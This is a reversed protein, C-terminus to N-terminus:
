LRFISAVKCSYGPLLPSTIDDHEALTAALKLIRGSLRYIHILRSAPDVIWYEKVRFKAYLQRKILRDRRDNEVGPSLIEIVLEPAGTIREGAAIERRREASVFVLDPIVGNFVDFIVGPTAWVEGIPKEALYGRISYFLNGFVSQHTLGPARTALIEGEIIEYRNGDDPMLELDAVTLVDDMKATM